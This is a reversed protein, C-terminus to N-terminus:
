GGRGRWKEATFTMGIKATQRPTCMDTGIDNTQCLIFHHVLLKLIQLIEHPFGAM